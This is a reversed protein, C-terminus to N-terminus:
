FTAFKVNQKLLMGIFNIAIREFPEIIYSLQM